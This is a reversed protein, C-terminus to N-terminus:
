ASVTSSSARTSEETAIVSQACVESPVCGIKRKPVSAWFRAHSGRRAAPSIRPENPRVSGSAPESAAFVRVRAVSSPPSHTISPALCNMVFAPVSIEPTTEIVATVPSRSPARSIEFRSTAFPVAPSSTPSGYRFIPQFAESV